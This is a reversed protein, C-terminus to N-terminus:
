YNINNKLNKKEEKEEKLKMKEINKRRIEEMACEYDIQLRINIEQREKLKKLREREYKIATSTGGEDGCPEFAGISSSKKMNRDYFSKNQTSYANIFHNNKNNNTSYNTRNKINNKAELLEERKKKADEILKRRRSNYHNYREEQLEKNLNQCEQNKKLYEDRSLFFLNEQEIGILECAMLSYPSNIRMKKKNFDCNELSIRDGNNDTM